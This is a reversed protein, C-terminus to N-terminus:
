EQKDDRRAPERARFWPLEDIVDQQAKPAVLTGRWGCSACGYPLRRLWRARWRAWRGDLSLRYVAQGCTPCVIFAPRANNPAAM